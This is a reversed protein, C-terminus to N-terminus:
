NHETRGEAITQESNSLIKRKLTGNDYFLIGNTFHGIRYKTVSICITNSLSVLKTNRFTEPAGHEANAFM